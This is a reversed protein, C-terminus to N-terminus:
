EERRKGESVVEERRKGESVVEERRKGERVGEERRGESVIEERRKRWNYVSWVYLTTVHSVALQDVLLM